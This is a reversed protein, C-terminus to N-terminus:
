PGSNPERVPDWFSCWNEHGWNAPNNSGGCEKCPEPAEDDPCMPETEEPADPNPIEETKKGFVREWNDRYTEGGRAGPYVSFSKNQFETM